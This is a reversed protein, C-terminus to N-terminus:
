PFLQFVRETHMAPSWGVGAGMGMGMGVGVGLGLGKGLGLGLGLGSGLGDGDFEVYGDDPFRILNVKAAQMPIM